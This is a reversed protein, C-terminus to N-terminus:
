AMPFPPIDNRRRWLDTIEVVQLEPEPAPEFEELRQPRRPDRASKPEGGDDQTWEEGDFVWM